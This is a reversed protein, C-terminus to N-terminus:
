KIEGNGDKKWLTGSNFIMCTGKICKIESINTKKIKSDKYKSIEKIFDRRLTFCKGTELMRKSKLGEFFRRSM